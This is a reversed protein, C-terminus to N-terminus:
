RQRVKNPFNEEKRQFFLWIQWRRAPPSRRCFHSSKVFSRDQLKTAHYGSFDLPNTTPTGTTRPLPPVNWKGHHLSAVCFFQVWLGRLDTSYGGAAETLVWCPSFLLLSRVIVRGSTSAPSGPLGYFLIAAPQHLRCSCAM